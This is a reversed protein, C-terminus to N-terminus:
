APLHDRSFFSRLNRRRACRRVAPRGLLRRSKVLPACRPPGFARAPNMAAGTFPYGALMGATVTLGVAFGALRNSLSRPDVMTAFFVLVLIFTLVAELIM